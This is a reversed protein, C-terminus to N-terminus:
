NTFGSTNLPSNKCLPRWAEILVGNNGKRLESNQENVDIVELLHVVRKPMIATIHNEHSDGILHSLVEPRFINEPPLTPVLNDDDHRVSAGFKGLLNSLPELAGESSIIAKLLHLDLDGDTNPDCSKIQQLM